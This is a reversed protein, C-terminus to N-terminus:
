RELPRIYSGTGGSVNIVNFGKEALESCAKSSRGGSQCIIHYEKSKDLYKDTEKLILEMPINKATPLHGNKYEYPERIDILDIKGLLNSDLDHVSISNFNNRGFNSFM